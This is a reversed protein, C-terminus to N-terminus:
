QPPIRRGLGPALRLGAVPRLRPIDGRRLGPCRPPAPPPDDRDSPSARPSSFFTASTWPSRFSSAARRGPGLCAGARPSATSCQSSIAPTPSRASRSWRSGRAKSLAACLRGRSTISTPRLTSRGGTRGRRRALASSLDGTTMVLHGGPRLWHAAKEIVRVPHALHEITDWLCVLDVSEPEDPLSLFDAARVDVGFRERAAAAAAESVDLGRVRWHARALELFYGYASGIELLDRAEPALARLERVREGFNRQLVRKDREYDLYEGGKFYDGGYASAPDFGDGQPFYALGCSACTVIGKAPYLPAPAASSGCLECPRASTM